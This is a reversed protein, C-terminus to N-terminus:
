FFMLNNDINFVNFQFSFSIKKQEIWAYYNQKAELQM